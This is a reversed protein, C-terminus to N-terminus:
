RDDERKDARHTPTLFGEDILWQEDRAPLWPEATHRERQATRRGAEHDRAVQEDCAECFRIARHAARAALWVLAGGSAALLAVTLLAESITM